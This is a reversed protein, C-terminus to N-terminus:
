VDAVVTVLGWRLPASIPVYKLVRLLGVLDDDGRIVVHHQETSLHTLPEDPDIRTALLQASGLLDHKYEALDILPLLDEILLWLLTDACHTALAFRDTGLGCRPESSTSHEFETSPLVSAALGCRRGAGKEFGLLREMPNWRAHWVEAHGESVGIYLAQKSLRATHTGRAIPGVLDLHMVDLRLLLAPGVRVVVGDRQARITM